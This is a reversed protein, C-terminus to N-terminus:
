GLTPDLVIKGTGPDAEMMRHADAACSLPMVHAIQVKIKGEAVAQFCKVHDARDHGPMGRITIRRDYLHFFNITANPGGHAGATVMRGDRGLALFARPLVDPNAINDYLVNVGNGGTIKM